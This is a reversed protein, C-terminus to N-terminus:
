RRRRNGSAQELRRRAAGYRSRQRPCRAARLREEDAAAQQVSRAARRKAAELVDQLERTRSETRDLEGRAPVLRQNTADLEEAAQRERALDLEAKAATCAPRPWTTLQPVTGTRGGGGAEGQAVVDRPHPWGGRASSLLLSRYPRCCVDGGSRSRGLTSGASARAGGAPRIPVSPGTPLCSAVL